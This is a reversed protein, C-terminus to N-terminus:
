EAAAPSIAALIPRFVPHVDYELRADRAADPDPQKSQELEDAWEQACHRGDSTKDDYLVAIIQQCIMQEFSNGTDVPMPLTRKGDLVISSIVFDGDGNDELTARGYLLCGEGLGPLKLEDFLYETKFAM